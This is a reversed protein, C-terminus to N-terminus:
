AHLRGRQRAAALDVQNTGICFCGVAALRRAHSLVEASLQTRSRIGIFHVDAIRDKLEDDSLAGPLNDIHSYGAARLVATASPHIGELLLFRIKHKDTSTAPGSTPPTPHTSIM